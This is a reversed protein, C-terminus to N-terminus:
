GRSCSGRVTLISGSSPPLFIRLIPAKPWLKDSEYWRSAQLRRASTLARGLGDSVHAIPRM